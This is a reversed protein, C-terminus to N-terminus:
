RPLFGANGVPKIRPCGRLLLDRAYTVAGIIGANQNALQVLTKRLHEGAHNLVPMTAAPEVILVECKIIEVNLTRFMGADACRVNLGIGRPLRGDQVASGVSARYSQLVQSLDLAPALM